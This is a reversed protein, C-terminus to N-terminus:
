GSSSRHRGASVRDSAPARVRRARGAAASLLSRTSAGWGAHWGVFRARNWLTRATIAGNSWRTTAATGGQHVVRARDAVAVRGGDRWVRWCLEEDEGYMFIRPDFRLGTHGPTLLMAAGAVWPVEKWGDGSRGAGPWRLPAPFREKLPAAAGSGDVLRPGVIWAGASAGVGLMESAADVPVVVDQNLVLAAEGTAADLGANAARGYGVNGRMALVRVRGDAFRRRLREGVGENDVLVIENVGSAALCSEVCRDIAAGGRYHVVVASVSTM